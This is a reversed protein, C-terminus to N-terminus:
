TLRHVRSYVTSYKSVTVFLHLKLIVVASCCDSRCHLQMCNCINVRGATTLSNSAGTCMVAGPDTYTCACQVSSPEAVINISLRTAYQSLQLLVSLMCLVKCNSTQVKQM